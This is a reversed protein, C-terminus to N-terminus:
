IDLQQCFYNFGSGYNKWMSDNKKWKDIRKQAEDLHKSIDPEKLELNFLALNSAFKMIHKISGGVAFIWEKGSNSKILAYCYYAKRSEDFTSVFHSCERDFINSSEDYNIGHQKIDDIAEQTLNGNVIAYDSYYGTIDVYNHKSFLKEKITDLTEHREGQIIADLDLVGGNAIMLPFMIQKLGDM